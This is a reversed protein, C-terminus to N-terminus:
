MCATSPKIYYFHCNCVHPLFCSKTTNRIWRHQATWLVGFFTGVVFGISARRRGGKIELPCKTKRDLERFKASRIHAGQHVGTLTRYRCCKEHGREPRFKDSFTSFTTSSNETQQVATALYKKRSYFSLQLFGSTTM